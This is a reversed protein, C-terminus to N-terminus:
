KVAAGRQSIVVPAIDSRHYKLCVEDKPDSSEAINLQSVTRWHLLRMTSMLLAVLGM